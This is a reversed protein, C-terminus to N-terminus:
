AAGIVSPPDELGAPATELSLAATIILEALPYTDRPRTIKSFHSVSYTFM